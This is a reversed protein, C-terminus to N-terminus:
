DEIEEPDEDPDEEPDEEEEQDKEIMSQESGDPLPVPFSEELVRSFCRALLGKVLRSNTARLSTNTSLIITKKFNRQLERSTGYSERLLYTLDEYSLDDDSWSVIEKIVTAWPELVTEYLRLIKVKNSLSHHIEWLMEIICDLLDLHQELSHLPHMRYNYYFILLIDRKKAFGCVETRTPTRILRAMVLVVM